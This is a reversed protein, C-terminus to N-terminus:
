RAQNFEEERKKLRIMERERQFVYKAIAQEEDDTRFFFQVGVMNNGQPDKRAWMVRGIMDLVQPPFVPLMLSVAIYEDSQYHHSTVFSAGTASLNIPREQMNSNKADNMTNVGILYNLKADLTEVAKSLEPSLGTDAETSFVDRGLMDRLMSNQRSRIGQQVKRVEFAESTLPEDSFAMMDDVRFVERRNADDGKSM